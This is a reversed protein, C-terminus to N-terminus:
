KSTVEYVFVGEPLKELISSFKHQLRENLRLQTFENRSKEEMFYTIFSLAIWGTAFLPILTGLAIECTM